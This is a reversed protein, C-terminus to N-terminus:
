SELCFLHTTTGTWAPPLLLLGSLDKPLRLELERWKLVVLAWSFTERFVYQEKWGQYKSWFNIQWSLGKVWVETTRHNGLVRLRKSGWCKQKATERHSRKLFAQGDRCQQKWIDKETKSEPLVEFNSVGTGDTDSHPYIVVDILKSDTGRGPILGVNASSHIPQSWLWPWSSCLCLILAFHFFLIFCLLLLALITESTSFNLQIILYM